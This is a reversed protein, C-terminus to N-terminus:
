GGVTLATCIVTLDKKIILDQKVSIGDILYNYDKLKKIGASTLCSGLSTGSKVEVTIGSSSDYDAIREMSVVISMPKITITRIEDQM